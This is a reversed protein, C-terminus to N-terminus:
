YGSEHWIRSYDTMTLLQAPTVKPHRKMYSDIIRMGIWLGVGRSHPTDFYPTPTNSLVVSKIMTTDTASLLHRSQLTQWVYGEQKQYWMKTAPQCGAIDILDKDTFYAVVWGIKGVYLMCDMLNAKGPRLDFTPPYSQRLYYTLCDQVIRSHEMTARQNAYFYKRYAPYNEGLYKDLSIGILSDGVVISQNFASNQTYVKPMTFHPVERCLKHLANGLQHEIPSIDEFQRTVDIRVQRLTPDSYYARLSDGIGEQDARGIHLVNEILTRTELPFETNMRQWLIVNDTAVFGEVIRDYRLIRFRPEDKTNTTTRDVWWMFGVMSLALAAIVLVAIRINNKISWSHMLAHIRM